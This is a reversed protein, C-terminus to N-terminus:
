KTTKYSECIRQLYRLNHISMLQGGLAEGVKLLHRIYSRTYGQECAWCDCGPQLVRQDSKFRESKFNVQLDLGYPDIKSSSHTSARDLEPATAGHAEIGDSGAAVWGTGHRANRTPLVCDMMDIGKEIAYRLDVPHGVGMLYRAKTHDYLPELFDLVAFMEERTEGVSLGGIAVGDVDSDNVYRLSEKRLEEDLGGQAIGFLLPARKSAASLRKHETISRELWRHTRDMAEKTRQRDTSLDVVDDFAMIIDAGLKHQLQM